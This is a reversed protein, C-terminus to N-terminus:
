QTSRLAITSHVFSAHYRSLYTVWFRCVLFKEDRKSKPARQFSTTTDLARTISKKRILADIDISIENNNAIHKITRVENAFALPTLPISVLRHVM